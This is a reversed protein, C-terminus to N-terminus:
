GHWRRDTKSYMIFLCRVVYWVNDYMKYNTVPLYCIYMMFCFAKCGKIKINSSDNMKLSSARSFKM